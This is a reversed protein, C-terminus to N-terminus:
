LDSAAQESQLGQWVEVVHILHERRAHVAKTLEADLGEIVALHYLGMRLVDSYTADRKDALLTLVDREEDLLKVTHVSCRKM